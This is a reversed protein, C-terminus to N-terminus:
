GQLPTLLLPVEYDRSTKVSLMDCRYEGLVVFLWVDSCWDFGVLLLLLLLLFSIFLVSFLNVCNTCDYLSLNPAIFFLILGLVVVVIIFFSCVMM